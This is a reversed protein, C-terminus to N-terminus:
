KMLSELHRSRTRDLHYLGSFTHFWYNNGPCCFHANGLVRRSAGPYRRFNASRDSMDVWGRSPVHRIKLRHDRAHRDGGRVADAVGRFCRQRLWLRARVHDRKIMCILSAALETSFGQTSAFSSVYDFPSMVFFTGSAFLAFHLERFLSLDFWKVGWYWPKRPLRGTMLLCGAVLDIGEFLATYRIGSAFGADAIVKHIFIPYVVGGLSAGISVIGVAFGRRRVFWQGVCILSSTFVGGAGIGFVVGQALFIQYYQTALSTMYLGLVCLSSTVVSVDASLLFDIFHRVAHAGGPFPEPLLEPVGWGSSNLFGSSGFVTLFAGLVCLWGKLGEEAPISSLSLTPEEALQLAADVNKEIEVNINIPLPSSDETRRHPM